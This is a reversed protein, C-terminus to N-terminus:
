TRLVIVNSERRQVRESLLNSAASTGQIYKPCESFYLYWNNHNFLITGIAM